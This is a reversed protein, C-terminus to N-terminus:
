NSSRSTHALQTIQSLLDNFSMSGDALAEITESFLSLNLTIAGIISMVLPANIMHPHVIWVYRYIAKGKLEDLEFGPLDILHNLFLLLSAVQNLAEDGIHFPLEIRFQIRIPLLTSSPRSYESPFPQEAAIVELLRERKKLDIGLSVLLRDLPVHETASLLSCTLKEQELIRQIEKLNM